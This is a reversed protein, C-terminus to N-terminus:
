ISKKIKDLASRKILDNLRKKEAQVANLIQKIRAESANLEAVTRELAGTEMQESRPAERENGAESLNPRELEQLYGAVETVTQRVRKYPEVEPIAGRKRLEEDV